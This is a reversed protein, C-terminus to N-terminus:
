RQSQDERVHALLSFTLSKRRACHCKFGQNSPPQDPEAAHPSSGLVREEGLPNIRPSNCEERRIVVSPRIASESSLNGILPKRCLVMRRSRCKALWAPVSPKRAFSGLVKCDPVLECDYALLVARCRSPFEYYSIAIGGPVGVRPPYIKLATTVRFILALVTCILGLWYGVLSLQKEM